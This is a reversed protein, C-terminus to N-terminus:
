RLARSVHRYDSTSYLESCMFAKAKMFTSEPEKSYMLKGCLFIMVSASCKYDCVSCTFHSFHRTTITIFNEDIEYFMEAQEDDVKPPVLTFLNVEAEPDFINGHRVRVNKFHDKNRLSHPIKIQYPKEANSPGSATIVQLHDFEAWPGVVCEDKPVVNEFRTPDMHIRSVFVGQSGKPIKLSVGSGPGQLIKEEGRSVTAIYQRKNKYM